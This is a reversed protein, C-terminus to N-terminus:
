CFNPVDGDVIERGSYAYLRRLMSTDDINNNVFILTQKCLLSILPFLPIDPVNKSGWIV